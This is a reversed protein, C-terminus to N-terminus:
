EKSYNTFRDKLIERILTVGDEEVEEHTGVMLGVHVDLTRVGVPIMDMRLFQITGDDITVWACHYDTEFGEGPDSGCYRFVRMRQRYDKIEEAAIFEASNLSQKLVRGWESVGAGLLDIMNISLTIKFQKPFSDPLKM